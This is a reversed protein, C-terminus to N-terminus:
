LFLQYTIAYVILVSVAVIVVWFCGKYIKEMKEPSRGQNSRYQRDKKKKKAM